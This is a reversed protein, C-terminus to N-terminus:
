MGTPLHTQEFHYYYFTVCLRHVEESVNFILFIIMIKLCSPSTLTTTHHGSKNSSIQRVVTFVVFSRGGGSFIKKLGFELDLAETGSM